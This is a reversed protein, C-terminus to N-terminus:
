RVPLNRFVGLLRDIDEDQIDGMNAIRFIRSELGGQGAYIVFGASRLHDHLSSYGWGAPLHFSSIMSSMSERPIFTAIGVEQLGDRICAALETYRKRRGDAGGQDELERLAEQLAFCAHVAPTFPSYGCKQQAHYRHLDLYIGPCQTDGSELLERRVMVFAVGPVGHLCKNATAAVADLPWAPYELVEAGFSSVADLLLRVGHVSCVESLAGIDNLRGTTTENHVVAVHSIDPSQQLARAVGALDMPKTWDTAVMQHPKGQAHLMDRMREGYVGNAVVLTTADRPALTALMAEVACTGSGTVVVPEFEGELQPYLSRLRHIIDEMLAAFDPERHCMDPRQLAARVRPTLNVPGPNLLIDRRPEKM